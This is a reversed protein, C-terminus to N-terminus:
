LIFHMYNLLVWSSTLVWEKNHHKKNLFFLSTFQDRSYGKSLDMPFFVYMSISRVKAKKRKFKAKDMVGLTRATKTKAVAQRMVIEDASGEHADPSDTEVQAVLNNKQRKQLMKYELETM